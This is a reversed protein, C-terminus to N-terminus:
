SWCGDRGVGWGGMCVQILRDLTEDSLIPWSTYEFELVLEKELEAWAEAEGGRVREFIAHSRELM